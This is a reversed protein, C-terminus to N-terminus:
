RRARTRIVEHVALTRRAAHTVARSTLTAGTIAIIDGKLSLDETLGHDLFTDLWGDPPRYEPPETFRVVEIRDITAAPTVIIMLVEPLTRVRHSDFYAYGLTDGGIVAIYYTVVSQGFDVDPGALTRVREIDLETLFATERDWMAPAPFARALAEDVTLTEQAPLGSCPVVATVLCAAVRVALRTGAVSVDHMM